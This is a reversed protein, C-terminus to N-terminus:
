VIWMVVVRVWWQYDRSITNVYRKRERKAAKKQEKRLKKLAKKAARAELEAENPISSPSISKLRKSSTAHSRRKLSSSKRSRKRDRRQVADNEMPEIVMDRSDSSQRRPPSAANEISRRTPSGAM